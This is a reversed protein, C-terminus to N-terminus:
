FTVRLSAGLNRTNPASLLELGRVNGAGQTNVEPDILSNPAYYFLNRGFLTFKMNKFVKTKIATGSLDYSVSVERVRFTTADFIAFENSNTGGTQGGFGANWYTQAPIQINNPIYSGDARAIVGPLIKPQERGEGTEKLSGNARLTAITFSEIDGGKKFDLLFSLTFNKYTFTNTLGAIWDRNPNAVIQDTVFGAYTGTTSDILRDGNANTTFKGGKIVGYPQGVVISPINGSFNTVGTIGYSTVGPAIEVIKNRNLSFNGSLAWSFNRTKIPTGSVTIEVGKNTMKGLNDIKTQYGVSGPVAVSVVQDKSVSSYANVDIILKNKFLGINAGIELSNTFEPKLFPNAIVNTAGFGATTGFPFSYSAVNNGYSYSYFTNNLAYVPADKGVEAYAARLKAFSLVDSKIKFADTLIFGASVSPYFFSNKDKPLTSSQDMRATLELFLYNNYALSLQGYYGSLRRISNYENSLTLNTANTINYFGPVTLGYGVESINQFSRQNLNQGLLLSANLGKTLVDNKKATILLDGNFETRYFLDEMMGGSTTGSAGTYTSRVVQTSGIAVIRKRRDTYADVGARYSINLWNTADYSLNITGLIRSLNSVIPNKNAAYYPNDAASISDKIVTNYVNPIYWNNYGGATTYNERYYDMDISRPASYLRAISSYAGNSGQTIGQQKTAFYTASGGIKLKETVYSSAAFQVNTKNFQSTPLIGDQRSNGIAMAFNNRADGANISLNNEVIKGTQFFGVLNDPYPNYSITEGPNYRRGNVIPNTAPAVILGNSLTPTAGFAPGYSFTSISSFIGNAGQGYVNQLEPFGYAKQTSYSSNYTVNVVGKKNTGKKTTIIIAGSSARSGYLAAAAPGQLVNVSEINNINLDMSRNASQDSYLGITGQDLDNSIPVGDVVFLPQNNGSFSTVGRLLINTSAGASGSSGTIEAGAIKGQLANLLSGDGKDALEEGKVTQTSYGLTRRNRSIGLATVVVDDLQKSSPILKILVAGTTITIEQSVYGTYSVSLQKINPPVSLIFEGNEKSLTRRDQGKVEITAGSLPKGTENDMVKGTVTRNQAFSQVGLLLLCATVLLRIKKYM